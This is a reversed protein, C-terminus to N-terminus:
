ALTKSSGGSIISIGVEVSQLILSGDGARAELQATFRALIPEIEGLARLCLDAGPQSPTHFPGGSFGFGLELAPLNEGRVWFPAVRRQGDALAGLELVVEGSALGDLRPWTDPQRGQAQWSEPVALRVTVQEWDKGTANIIVFRLSLPLQNFDWLQTGDCHGWLMAPGYRRFVVGNSGFAGAETRIIDMEGSGARDPLGAQVFHAEEGPALVRSQWSLADSAGAGPARFGVQVTWLMNNKNKVRATSGDEAWSIDFVNSGAHFDQWGLHELLGRPALTLRRAPADVVLGLWQYLYQWAWAGQGQSCRTLSRQFGQGHPWWFASGTVPDAYHDKFIELSQRMEAPTVSGALRSFYATGDMVAPDNPSWHLTEFEPDYHYCWLSRAYRHYNVWTRDEFGTFGYIPALMSATDEGDYYLAGEPLYSQGPDEGLNTGGSIQPGFPGAVVMTRQVAARIERAIQHYKGADEPRGAQDFLYAMSDFAYWAKVNTGYDYRRGVWGDSSFRSPFLCEGPAKLTLLEELIGQLAELVEPHARLFAVDGSAQLWQRAIIVPAVLIPTSHDAPGVPAHSRTMFFLMVQRAMEPVLHAVSVATPEVDIGWITGYGHSPAGQWHSLLNGAADTQLCNFNDFLSRIYSERSFRELEGGGVQLQGLRSRWFAATFNLWELPTHLHLNFMEPLVGSYAPALSLYTEFTAEEGPALAFRKEAMFPAEPRGWRGDHLHIGVSGEPRTLVLTHQTLNISPQKYPRNEPAADEYHGILLDSAQLTVSGRVPASGGNRLHLIYFAGAPGPLPAPALAANEGDPAVPAFSILAAELSGAQARTVPLFHEVYSTENERDDAALDMPQTEGEVQISYSLNGVYMAVDFHHYMGAGLGFESTNTPAPYVQTPLAIKRLSGNAAQGLLVRANSQTYLAESFLNLGPNFARDAVTDSTHGCAFEARPADLISKWTPFLHTPNM